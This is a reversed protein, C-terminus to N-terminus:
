FLSSDHPGSKKAALYMLSFSAIKRDWGAKVALDVMADLHPKLAERCEVEYKSHKPANKPKDVVPEKILM